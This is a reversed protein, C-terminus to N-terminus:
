RQNPSLSGLTPSRISSQGGDSSRLVVASNVGTSTYTLFLNGFDDWTASPSGQALPFPDGVGDGIIQGNWTQGADTSFSVFIGPTSENSSAAFLHSSDTRDIAITGSAQNLARQSINVNAGVGIALLHREELRELDLRRSKRGQARVSNQEPRSRRAIRPLLKM